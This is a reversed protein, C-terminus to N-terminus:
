LDIKSNKRAYKLFEKQQNLLLKKIHKRFDVSSKLIRSDVMPATLVDHYDPHVFNELSFNNINSQIPEGSIACRWEITNYNEHLEDIKVFSETTRDWYTKRKASSIAKPALARFVAYIFSDDDAGKAIIPSGVLLRRQYKPLNDIYIGRSNMRHANKYAVYPTREIKIDHPHYPM